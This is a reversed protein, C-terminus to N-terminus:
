SYIHKKIIAKFVYLFSFIKLVKKYQAIVFLENVNLELYEMKYKLSVISPRDEIWDHHNSQGTLMLPMMAQSKAM